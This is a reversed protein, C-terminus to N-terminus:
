LPLLLPWFAVCSEFATAVLMGTVPLAPLVLSFLEELLEYRDCHGVKWLRKQLYVLQM